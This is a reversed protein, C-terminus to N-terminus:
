VNCSGCMKSEHLCKKLSKEKTIGCHGYTEGLTNISYCTDIASVSDEGFLYKCQHTQSYCEGNVCLGGYTCNTGNSKYVDNCEPSMGDCYDVLDCESHANRCITRNSAIKCSVCCDGYACEAGSTLLRCTSPNCCLNTCFTVSGCDCEENEEVINNGCKPASQMSINPQNKLCLAKESALYADVSKISCQSFHKPIPYTSRPYMICYGSSDACACTVEDHTMNLNHGIEHAMTGSVFSYHVDTKYNSLGGSWATSCMAGVYGLGIVDNNFNQATLLHVNDPYTINKEAYCMFQKLVNNADDTINIKDEENWTEIGVLVVRVDLSRYITDIMNVIDISRAINASVDGLKKYLSNSHVLYLEITKMDKRHFASNSSRRRRTRQYSDSRLAEGYGHISEYDKPIKQYTTLNGTFLESSESLTKEFHLDVDYNLERCMVSIFISGNKVLDIKVCVDCSHESGRYLHIGNTHVREELKVDGHFTYVSISPVLAADYLDVNYTKNLYRGLLWIQISNCKEVEQTCSKTVEAAIYQDTVNAFTGFSLHLLAFVVCTAIM